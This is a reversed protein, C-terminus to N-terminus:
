RKRGRNGEMSGHVIRPKKPVESTSMKSARATLDPEALYWIPALANPIVMPNTAHTNRNSCKNLLGALVKSVNKKLCISKSDPSERGPLGDDCIQKANKRSAAAVIIHSRSSLRRISTKWTKTASAM